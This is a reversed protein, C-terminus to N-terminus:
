FRGSIYKIIVTSLKLSMNKIIIVASHEVSTNANVKYFLM